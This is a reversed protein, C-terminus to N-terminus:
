SLLDFLEPMQDLKLRRLEKGYAKYLDLLRTLSPDGEGPEEGNSWVVFAEMPLRNRFVILVDKHIQDRGMPWSGTAVLMQEYLGIICESVALHAEEGQDTRMKIDRADDPLEYSGDQAFPLQHPDDPGFAGLTLADLIRGVLEPVSEEFMDERLFALHFQM